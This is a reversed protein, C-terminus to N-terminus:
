VNHLLETIKGLLSDFNQGITVVPSINDFVSFLPSRNSRSPFNKYFFDTIRRKIHCLPHYQQLHLNRGIQSQIRETVNSWDDKPYSHGGITLSEGGKNVHSQAPASSSSNNRSFFGCGAVRPRPPGKLPKLLQALTSM